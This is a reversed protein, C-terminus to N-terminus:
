PHEHPDKPPLPAISMDEAALTYAGKEGPTLYLEYCGGNELEAPVYRIPGPALDHRITYAVDFTDGPAFGARSRIAKLVTCSARVSRTEFRATMTPPAQGAKEVEVTVENVQAHLHEPAAARRQTMAKEHAERRQREVQPPLASRASPVAACLCLLTGTMAHKLHAM